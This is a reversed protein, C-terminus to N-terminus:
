SAEGSEPVVKLSRAISAPRPLVKAFVEEKPGFNQMRGRNMVLLYDVGAVASPRHAVVLVIGGRQRVG